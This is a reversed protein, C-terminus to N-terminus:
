KHLTYANMLISDPDEGDSNTLMITSDSKIKYYTKEGSSPTVLEILNENILNYLGSELFAEQGTGLYETTLTYTSDASITLETKIGECDAAPLTGYYTGYFSTKEVNEEAQETATANDSTHKFDCSYLMAVAFIFLISKKM